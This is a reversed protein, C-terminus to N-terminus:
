IEGVCVTTPFPAVCCLKCLAINNLDNKGELLLKKKKSEDFLLSFLVPQKSQFHVICVNYVWM